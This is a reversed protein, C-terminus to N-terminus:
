KRLKTKLTVNKVTNNVYKRIFPFSQIKIKKDNCRANQYEYLKNVLLHVNILVKLM